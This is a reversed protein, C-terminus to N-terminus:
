NRLTSQQRIDTTMAEIPGLALGRMLRPQGIHPSIGERMMIRRLPGISAALYLGLGRVAQIPLFGTLLSRNLLDVAATRSFIDARRATNYAASAAPGNLGGARRTQWLAEGLAAVDRLGLNLGQAGIPPFAHAAEGVLVVRGRGFTQAVQCGLPYVQPDSVVEVDGLIHRSRRAIERALSAKDMAKLDAAERPRVVCVLSSLLEGLPVMTFPGTETHFETSTDDHGHRHSFNCVFAAQDYTWSRTGIGAATRVASNRGDAGVVIDAEIVTNEATRIRALQGDVDIDKATEAIVTVSAWAAVMAALPGTICPNPINYGFAELDLEAAHFAVEPARILRGTGDIIRMSKLPAAAGRLHQWLDLAQLLRVSAMLLATTRGDHPDARPAVLITNLGLRGLLITLTLGAPGGGIVAIDCRTAASRSISPPPTM